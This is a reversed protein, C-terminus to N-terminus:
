KFSRDQSYFRREDKALTELGSTFHGIPVLGQSYGFDHYFIALNGWPVFLTLDGVSPAYGEPAKETSLSRPPYGIKETNNFDKLSLTLPLMFVLDRSTPNDYLEAVAEVSGFNLKIKTTGSPKSVNYIHDKSYASQVGGMGSSSKAAETGCGVLMISFGIMLAVVSIKKMSIVECTKSKIEVDFTIM